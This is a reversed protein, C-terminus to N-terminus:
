ALVLLVCEEYYVVCSPSNTRALYVTTSSNLVFLMWRISLLAHQMIIKMPQIISQLTLVYLM